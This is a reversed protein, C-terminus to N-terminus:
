PKKIDQSVATFATATSFALLVCRHRNKIDRVPTLAAVSDPRIGTEPMIEKTKGALWAELGDHLKDLDLM